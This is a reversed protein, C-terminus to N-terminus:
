VEKQRTQWTGAREQNEKAKLSLREKKPQINEKRSSLQTTDDYM